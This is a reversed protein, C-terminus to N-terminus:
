TRKLLRWAATHLATIGQAQFAPQDDLIDRRELLGVDWREGFLTRIEGADVSFPPGQKEAQPYELDVVLGRTGPAMRAYVRYAYQRRMDPPLAILAARDYIAQCGAVLSDELAFADGLVIEIPGSAYHTGSPSVHIRPTMGHETFFQQVAIPSLEVGLVRHGQEALWLLDLSKGCLPVLVRSGPPAFIESWCRELLPTPRDQHFGTQGQQWRQRWFDPEM